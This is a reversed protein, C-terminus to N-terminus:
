NKISFFLYSSNEENFFIIFHIGVLTTAFYGLLGSNFMSFM